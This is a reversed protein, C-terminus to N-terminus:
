SGSQSDRNIRKWASLLVYLHIWNIVKKKIIWCLILHKRSPKNFSFGVVRFLLFQFVLFTCHQLSQRHQMYFARPFIVVSQNVLKLLKVCSLEAFDFSPSIFVNNERRVQAACVCCCWCCLLSNLVIVAHIVEKRINIIARYWNVWM